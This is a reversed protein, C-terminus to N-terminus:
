NTRQCLFLRIGIKQQIKKLLAERKSGALMSSYCSLECEISDFILELEHKTFQNM